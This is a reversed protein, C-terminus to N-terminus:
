ITTVSETPLIGFNRLFNRFKLIRFLDAFDAHGTKESMKVNKTLKRVNRGMELIKFYNESM